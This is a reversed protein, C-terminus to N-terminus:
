QESERKLDGCSVTTGAKGPEMDPSHVRISYVGSAPAPVALTIELDASGSSDSRLEPYSSALGVVAGDTACSGSHMHWAYATGPAADKLEIDMRSSDAGQGKVEANGTIRSGNKPMLTAKWTSDPSAVVALSAATAAALAILRLM